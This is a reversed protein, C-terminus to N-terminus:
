MVHHHFEDCTIICSSANQLIEESQSPKAAQKKAASILQNEGTVWRGAQM